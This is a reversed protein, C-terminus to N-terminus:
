KFLFPVSLSFFFYLANGFIEMTLPSSYIWFANKLNLISFSVFVTVTDWIWAPKSSVSAVAHVPYHHLLCKKELASHSACVEVETCTLSRKKLNMETRNIYFVRTPPTQSEGAIIVAIDHYRALRRPRDWQTSTGWGVKGSNKIESYKAWITEAPLNPAAQPQELRRQVVTQTSHKRYNPCDRANRAQQVNKDGLQAVTTPTCKKRCLDQKVYNQTTFCFLLM